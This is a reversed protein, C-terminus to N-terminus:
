AFNEGIQGERVLRNLVELMEKLGERAGKIRSDEAALTDPNCGNYKEVMDETLMAAARESMNRMVAKAIKIDKLYWLVCILSEAQVERLLLQWANNSLQRLPWATERWSNDVEPSTLEPNPSPLLASAQRMLLELVAADLTVDVEVQAGEGTKFSLIYRTGSEDKKLVFDPAHLALSITNTM